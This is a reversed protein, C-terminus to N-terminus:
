GPGTQGGERDRTDALCGGILAGSAGSAGTGSAGDAEIREFIEDAAGGLVHRFDDACIESGDGQEEM